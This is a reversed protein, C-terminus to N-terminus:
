PRHPRYRRRGSWLARAGKHRAVKAVPGAVVSAIAVEGVTGASHATPGATEVASPDVVIAAATLVVIRVGTPDPRRPVKGPVRGVVWSMRVNPVRAGSAVIM